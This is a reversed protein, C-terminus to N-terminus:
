GYKSNQQGVGYVEIEWEDFYEEFSKMSNEVDSDTTVNLEVNDNGVKNSHSDVFSLNEEFYDNLDIQTAFM